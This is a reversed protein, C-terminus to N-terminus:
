RCARNRNCGDDDCDTLGDNDNDLFDSCTKGKGEPRCGKGKTRDRGSCDQDKGDSCIDIAGPHTDPDSDNCDVPGCLEGDVSFGDGDTDTCIIVGCEPDQSDILGSCDNDKTDSCDEALGPNMNPDNDNCDVATGCGDAAFFGDDDMDVCVPGTCSSDASCFYCLNGLSYESMHPTMEKKDKGIHCLLCNSSYPNSDLCFSDVDEGYTGKAESENLGLVSLAGIVVILMLLFKRM